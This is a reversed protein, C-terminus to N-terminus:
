AMWRDRVVSAAKLVNRLCIPLPFDPCACNPARFRTPDRRLHRADSLEAAGCSWAGANSRFRLLRDFYLDWGPRAVLWPHRTQVGPGRLAASCRLPNLNGARYPDRVPIHALGADACSAGDLRVGAAGLLALSRHAPHAVAARRPTNRKSVERQVLLSFYPPGRFRCSVAKNGGCFVL